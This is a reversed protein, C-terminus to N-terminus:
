LWRLPGYGKIKNVIRQPLRPDGEPFRGLAEDLGALEDVNDALSYHVPTLFFDRRGVGTIIGDMHVVHNRRGAFVSRPNIDTGVFDM